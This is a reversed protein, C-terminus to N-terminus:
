ARARIQESSRIAPTSFRDAVLISGNPQVVVGQPSAGIFDNGLSAIGGTGFTSDLVGTSLFRAVFNEGVAVIKGDSQLTIATFPVDEISPISVMGGTGFTSDLSGNTNYRAVAPVPFGNNGPIGGCVVIQGNPQITVANATAVNNSQSQDGFDTTVIGGNGFTPDLQGAQAAAQQFAIFLISLILLWARKLTTGYM